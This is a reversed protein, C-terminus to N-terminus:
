CNRKLILKMHTSDKIDIGVESKVTKHLYPLVYHEHFIVDYCLPIKSLLTERSIPIYNEKVERQWNPEAYKYKLLFHILNRNSEISGWISEFENLLNSDLFKHYVKKVDNVCSARDIARGPVMDRIVIYEFGSDFVQNWFTDIDVKSGYHFVEHIVSSLVLAPHKAEVVTDM